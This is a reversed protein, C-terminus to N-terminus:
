GPRLTSSLVAGTELNIISGSSWSLQQLGKENFFFLSAGYGLRAYSPGTSEANWLRIAGDRGASAIWRGDPSFIVHTVESEQGRLVSLEAGTEADWVRVTGDM